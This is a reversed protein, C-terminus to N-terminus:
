KIVTNGPLLETFMCLPLLLRSVITEIYDAHLLLMSICHKRHPRRHAFAHIYIYIYIYICLRNGPLAAIFMYGCCHSVTNEM